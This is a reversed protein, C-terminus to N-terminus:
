FLFFCSKEVMQWKRQPLSGDQDSKDYMGNKNVLTNIHVVERSTDLCLNSKLRIGGSSFKQIM